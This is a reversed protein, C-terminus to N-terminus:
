SESVQEVGYFCTFNSSVGETQFQIDDDNDKKKKSVETARCGKMVM